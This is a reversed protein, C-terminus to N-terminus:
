KWSAYGRKNSSCSTFVLLVVLVIALLVIVFSLINSQTSTKINKKM